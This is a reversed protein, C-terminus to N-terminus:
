PERRSHAVRARAVTREVFSTKAATYAERDDAHRAALSHKLADYEDAVDPNSRLYDRFLLRPEWWPGGIEVLILHHTRVDPSPKCFWHMEPRYDFYCYRLAELAQRVALAESLSRVGAMIDIIPKAALGPVATSGVHEIGGQLVPALVALLQSREEEFM